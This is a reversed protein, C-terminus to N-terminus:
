SARFLIKQGVVDARVWRRNFCWCLVSILLVINVAEVMAKIM